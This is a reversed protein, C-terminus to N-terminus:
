LSVFPLLANLADQLAVMKPIKKTMNQLQAVDIQKSELLQAMWKKAGAEDNRLQCHRLNRFINEDCFNRSNSYAEKLATVM